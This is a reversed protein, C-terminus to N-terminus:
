FSGTTTSFETFESHCSACQWNRRPSFHQNHCILHVIAFTSRHRTSAGSSFYIIGLKLKLKGVTWDIDKYSDVKRLKSEMSHFLPSNSPHCLGENSCPRRLGFLRSLKLSIVENATRGKTDIALGELTIGSRGAEICPSQSSGWVLGFAARVAM